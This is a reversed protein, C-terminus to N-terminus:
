QHQCSKTIKRTTRRKIRKRYDAPTEGALGGHERENQYFELYKEQKKNFDNINKFRQKTILEYKLTKIGREIKANKNPQGYPIFSLKIGQEKCFKGFKNIRRRVKKRFKKKRYKTKLLYIFQTGNDVRIEEPRGYKKILKKVFNIANNASKQKYTYAFMTRTCDDIGVYDYTKGVGKIRFEKLDLRWLRNFEKKTRDPRKRGKRKKKKGVLGHKKLWYKISTPSLAIGHKRKLRWSIRKYGMKELRLAVIIEEIDPKVKVRECRNTSRNDNLSEIDGDFRKIWRFVSRLSVRYRESLEVASFGQKFDNVIQFKQQVTVM